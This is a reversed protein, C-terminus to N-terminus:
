GSQKGIAELLGRMYGIALIKGLVSYGPSKHEEGEMTPVHDPRIAGQYGNDHFAKMVQYMDVQGDDHFQETFLETSGRLNRFHAFFIKKQGAFRGITEKVDVGMESFCGQCFTIGNYQSPVMDIVRQFSDPHIMIRSVERIPSLPPDDPHIALRVGAEEAVPLVANLFYSLSDWLQDVSVDGAETPPGNKMLAHDYSTALAGGRVRTTFSTRTWDFMASWTYVATSVGVAGLNRITAQIDEIGEDRGASGLKVANPIRLSEAVNWALGADVIKQKLRLTHLYEWRSSDEGGPRPRTIMEDFGAQKALRLDSESPERPLSLGIRMTM